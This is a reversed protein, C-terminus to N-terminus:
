VIIVILYMNVSEDMNDCKPEFSLQPFIATEITPISHTHMVGIDGELSGETRM